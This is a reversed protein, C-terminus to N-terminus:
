DFKLNNDITIGLLKATKTEWINHQWIQAWVQQSKNGSILLNFKGSIMKM